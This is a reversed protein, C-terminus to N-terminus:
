GEDWAYVGAIMARAAARYVTSYVRGDFYALQRRIAADLEGHSYLRGDAVVAELTELARLDRTPNERFLVFDAPVGVRLAGLGEVGLREGARRTAIELVEAAPIGAAALHRLEEHLAAGPVVFPNMTDTGPLVSVGRAHLLGVARQMLDYRDPLEGFGEPELWAVLPNAHPNWLLERYHRPLLQAAPDDRLGDYDELQAGRAFAVLTPTHRLGIRRSREVYARVGANTRGEAALGMLHQLEVGRLAEFPVADPLHGVIPLDLRAAEERLAAFAHFSLSNYIKVCDSGEEVLASVAARAEEADLVVRAGPWGPPEGDVIPGCAFIRPGALEGERIRRRQELMGGGFSGVDRVSTVGHRLFLLGFLEREGWALVPPHHVHLDVLGPLAYAGAYASSATPTADTSIEVITGGEVRLTRGPFSPEGPNVLTLGSLELGRPPVPLGPPGTALHLVVLSLAAALGCATVLLARRM